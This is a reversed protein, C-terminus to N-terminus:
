YWYIILAIKVQFAADLMIEEYNDITTGKLTVIICNHDTSWFMGLIEGMGMDTRCHICRFVPLVGCVM